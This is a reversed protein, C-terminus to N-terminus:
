SKTRVQLNFLVNMFFILGQIINAPCVEHYICYVLFECVVYRACSKETESDSYVIEDEILAVTTIM